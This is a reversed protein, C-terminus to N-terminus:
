AHERHTKDNVQAIAKEESRALVHQCITHENAYDKGNVFEHVDILHAWHDGNIKDILVSFPMYGAGIYPVVPAAFVEIDEQELIGKPIESEEKVVGIVRTDSYRGQTIVFM